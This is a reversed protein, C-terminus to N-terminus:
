KRSGSLSFVSETGARLREINAKHRWIIFAGAVIAAALVPWRPHSILWVGLPFSGAAIISGLSIHRTVAVVIVFIIAVALIPLPELYLFAGLCSAVAKGGRFKLFVPYAHGLMVALAAASSWGPSGNTFRAMLWVATYGKAIDLLLTIVGALRGTTRWVNTAGINGSGMARVDAGTTLKVVLHGFPIAGLIYAFLLLLIPTM